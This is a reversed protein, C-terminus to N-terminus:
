QDRGVAELPCTPLSANRVQRSRVPLRRCRGPHGVWQWIGVHAVFWRGDGCRRQDQMTVAQHEDRDAM